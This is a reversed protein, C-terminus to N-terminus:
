KVFACEGPQYTMPMDYYMHDYIFSFTVQNTKFTYEYVKTEVTRTVFNFGDVKTGNIETEVNSSCSILEEGSKECKSKKFRVTFSDGLKKIIELKQKLYDFDHGTVVGEFVPANAAGFQHTVKFEVLEDGDQNKVPKAAYSTTPLENMCTFEVAVGQQSAFVSVPVIMLLFLVLSKM